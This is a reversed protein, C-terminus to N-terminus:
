NKHKLPTAFACWFIRIVIAFALSDIFIYQGENM